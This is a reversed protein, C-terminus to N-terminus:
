VLGSAQSATTLMISQTQDGNMELSCSSPAATATPTAPAATTTPPATTSPAATSTNDSCDGPGSSCTSCAQIPELYESLLFCSTPSLTDNPFFYTYFSCGAFSGCALKCDAESGAVPIVELINENLRGVVNSGCTDLCDLDQSVCNHCQNVRDCSRFLQCVEAAPFADQDFYTIFHCGDEDQCLQRCEEVSPVQMVIDIISGDNYECEVGESSCEIASGQSGSIFLLALLVCFASTLSGMNVCLVRRSVPGIM